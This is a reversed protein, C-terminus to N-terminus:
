NENATATTAENAPAAATTAPATNVSRRTTAGNTSRDGAVFTASAPIENGASARARVIGIYSGNVEDIMVANTNPVAVEPRANPFHPSTVRDILVSM